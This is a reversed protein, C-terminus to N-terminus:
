IKFTAVLPLHDSAVLAKKTRCISLSQLTMEPDYYIHDLHLMPLFGPYTRRRKLHLRIDVSEFNEALLRTTLGRTWENFDGLILCPPRRQKGELVALLKRAQARRELFSTGLHVNYVRLVKNGIGIDTQLAGRPERRWTLDHVTWSRIALRSLTVNGYPGGRLQRVGGVAYEYGLAKALIMGQDRLPDGAVNMVEQLAIVDADLERLVEVIRQPRTRQDMGRCKHINYTAIRISRQM